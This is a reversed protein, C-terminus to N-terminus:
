GTLVQHVFQVAVSGEGVASAVRKVSAARVDGVAFVGPLSTELLYPDRELAWRDAGLAPGTPIFGLEDTVVADALWDTRPQAGIFVFMGRAALVQEGDPTSLHVRELQVAGDVRTVTSGAQVRINPAAEIRDVLYRSMRAALDAARVVIVVEDAFGALHLAAQGASNAGGVVVVREGAMAPAETSAAGYYVGAGTVAEVGPVDLRRYEVGTAVIVAGGHLESGDDLLVVRYPDEARLGCARHPAVLTSGFRRAQAFARRALESGSIGQPFGLYNEIRSSLGAQGGPAEAEVVITRLGETAGYVAAALGAPGAGIVVLDYHDVEARQGLGLREAVETVSPDALVEGDELVVAPLRVGDARLAALLPGADPGAPDVWRFPVQNRALYDRLRYSPASWRDGVVRLGPELRTRTAHWSELLEDLVPYLREEPPDWPKLVYHDLGVENIASIAADTDAYATLLVSRLDPQLEKARALLETGTLGPMRQDAVVLAVVSGRRTIREVAALAEPGGGATVVRYRDGYRARVDAAVADVVPPDDDVVVISPPQARDVREAAQEPTQHAAM